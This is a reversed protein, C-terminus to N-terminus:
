TDRSVGGARADHPEAVPPPYGQAFLSQPYLRIVNARLGEAAAQPTEVATEALIGIDDSLIVHWVDRRLWSVTGHIDNDNLVVIIAGLDAPDNM